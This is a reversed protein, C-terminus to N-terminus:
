NITELLLDTIDVSNEPIQAAQVGNDNETKDTLELSFGIGTGNETINVIVKSNTEASTGDSEAAVSVNIKVCDLIEQKLDEDDDGIVDSIIDAFDQETINVSMSYGGNEKETISFYKDLQEYMDFQAALALATDITADSDGENVASGLLIRTVDESSGLSSVTVATKLIDKTEDPVSLTDILKYLDLKYWKNEDIATLGTKLAADETMEAIKGFLDTKMYLLGENMVLSINADNIEYSNENLTLGINLKIDSGVTNDVYSSDADGSLYVATKENPSNVDFSFNFGTYEKNYQTQDMFMIKNMNPAASAFSDFYDDYDMIIVTESDGDWGVQMDLANSMFRIPVLTRDQVIIMPVDMTITSQVGNKDIYITDDMLTFKITIDGKVATVLRQTDDYEVTAGMSELAARFPIMVRGETNVPKVDEYQVVKDNYLIHIEDANSLSNYIGSIRGAAQANVTCPLAMSLALALAIIKKM